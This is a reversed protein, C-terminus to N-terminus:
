RQNPARKGQRRMRDMQKRELDYLKVIQVQSLFKSYEKYYKEQIDNFKRWHEFRGTLERRAEDETMEMRRKKVADGKQARKHGPGIKWLEKQCKCYTDILKSTTEEDLKLESAIQKAQLEAFQERSMRNGHNDAALSFIALWLSIATAIAKRTIINM